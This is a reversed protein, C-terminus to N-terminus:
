NNEITDQIWKDFRAVRTYVGPKDPRACGWGWSVVGLVTWKGNVNKVLPGGSDGQCSDKGGVGLKGACVMSSTIGNGYYKSKKCTSDSILPVTVVQLTSPSRTDYNARTSGWGSVIVNDGAAYDANENAMKPLCAPQVYSDFHLDKSLKLLTIDNHQTRGGYRPHTFHQQVYITQESGETYGLRHDGAVIKVNSSGRTFCHAATLIWRKNIITGGCFHYWKQISVQWPLSGRNANSGGVIYGQSDSNAAFHDGFYRNGCETFAEVNVAAGALLFALIVSLSAM